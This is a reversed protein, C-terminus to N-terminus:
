APQPRSIPRSLWTRALFQGLSAPTMLAQVIRSAVLVELSTAATCVAPAGTFVALLFRANRRYPEALRGFFVLLAAYVIAYGNLMWSLRKFDAEGPDRAINPLAANVIFLDLNALVIGVRGIALVRNPRTPIPKGAQKDRANLPSHM